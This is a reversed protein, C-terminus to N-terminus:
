LGRMALSFLYCVLGNALGQILSGVTLFKYGDRVGMKSLQTVVWFFSDNAHSVVQAGAGIAVATLARTHPTTLGFLEMLPGMIGATTIMAVTSSGQATKIFAAILWPLWTGMPAQGFLQQIYTAVKAEQLVKGFAGGAGTVLIIMACTKIGDGVWGGTGILTRDLTPPLLLCTLCGRLACLRPHRCLELLRRNWRLHPRVPRKLLILLIPLVLPLLTLILAPPQTGRGRHGRCCSWCLCCRNLAGCRRSSKAPPTASGAKALDTERPTVSVSPAPTISAAVPKKMLPNEVLPIDGSVPVPRVRSGDVPSIYTRRGFFVAWCFCPILSILSCVGGWLIMLGLDAGVAAAAAVPGPTPPVLTHTSYLGLMLAITPSVITMDAQQALSRALPFLLIFASDCFVPISVIWGVLLMSLSINKKGLLRLVATALREAGGSKELFTGIISGFIIVIGISGITSGFGSNLAPLVASVPMNLSLLGYIVSVIILTVLADLKLLVTGLIILVVCLVLLILLWPSLM